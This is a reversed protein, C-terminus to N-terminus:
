TILLQPFLPSKCGSTEYYAGEATGYIKEGTSPVRHYSVFYLTHKVQPRDM